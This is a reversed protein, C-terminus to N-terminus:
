ENRRAAWRNRLRHGIADNSVGFHQALRDPAITDSLEDVIDAPMLLAAAFSNAYIEGPNTGRGALQDRRDVFAWDQERAQARRVWHGIEHACTFRQRNRGDSANLFITPQEGPRNVLMGGVGEDLRATVVVLGLQRAIFIPDVPVSPTPSGFNWYEVLVAHADVDANGTPVPLM